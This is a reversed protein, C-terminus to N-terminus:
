VHARGIEIFTGHGAMEDILGDNDDDVLNSTDNPSMFQYIFNYGNPSICNTIAPHTTDVGTDLIAVLVGEGKSTLHASDIDMLDLAYQNKFGNADIGLGSVWLSDTQGSATDVTLNAEGWDLGGNKIADQIRQQIASYDEPPVDFPYNITYLNLNPIRSAVSASDTGTSNDIQQLLEYVAVDSDAKVISQGPIPIEEVPDPDGACALGTVLLSLLLSRTM